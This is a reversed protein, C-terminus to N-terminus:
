IHKKINQFSLKALYTRTKCNCHAIDKHDDYWGSLMFSCNSVTNNVCILTVSTATLQILNIISICCFCELHLQFLNGWFIMVCCTWARHYHPLKWWEQCMWLVQIEIKKLSKFNNIDYLNGHLPSGGIFFKESAVFNIPRFTIQNTYLNFLRSTYQLNTQPWLYYMKAPPILRCISNMMQLLLLPWMQKIMSTTPMMIIFITPGLAGPAAITM